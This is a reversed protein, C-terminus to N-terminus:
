LPICVISTHISVQIRWVNACLKRLEKFYSAVYSRWILGLIAFSMACKLKICNIYMIAYILLVESPGQIHDTCEYQSHLM